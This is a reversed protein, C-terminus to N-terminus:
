NIKLGAGCLGRSAFHLYVHDPIVGCTRDINKQIAIFESRFLLDDALLAATIDYGRSVVAVCFDMFQLLEDPDNLDDRGSRKIYDRVMQGSRQSAFRCHAIQLGNLKQFPIAAGVLLHPVPPTNQFPM